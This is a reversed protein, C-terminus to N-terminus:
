HAHGFKPRTGDSIVLSAECQAQKKKLAKVKNLVYSDTNVVMIQVSNRGSARKNAEQSMKM